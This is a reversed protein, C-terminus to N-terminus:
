ATLTELAALVRREGVRHEKIRYRELARELSARAGDVDRAATLVEAEGVSQKGRMWAQQAPKGEVKGFRSSPTQPPAASSKCAFAPLALVFSLALSRLRLTM